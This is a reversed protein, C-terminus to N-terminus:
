FVHIKNRPVLILDDDLTLLVMFSFFMSAASLFHWVDHKDYFDLLECPQNYSKSQAPTLAWSISKNFFFYLSAAWSACSLLIYFVPQPLIRESCCKKMVIYFATYLLLNAMFIYLLYTAFDRLHYLYGYIALGWNCLNGLILLVMRNPYIPRICYYPNAKMDHYINLLVRKFVGFDLRWRGMYYIQASLALCTLLHVGTFGIWFYLTGKLVGWMGVLIVCALVAFTVYANANIDPHRNQYIKIMCLMAIVYMFSTDFQFNSHNPCVHYCGSLIGEMILAAGMAYFLGYHQPIGCFKDIRKDSQCHMRDRRYTLIIFLLGLLVYGLNSFVHNFDSLAGLPHACLFNYYCLDQNGTQNLVLQYTIVLQIVPLSYFVAVTLLNWLYLLSKQRLIRSDKRALDSVYLDTKTRFIDKEVYADVLADIDTEDLSSDSNCHPITSATDSAPSLVPSLDDNIVSDGDFTEESLPQRRQRIFYIVSIAISFVYFLGFIALIVISAVIYKLYTISPTLSFTVNKTRNFEMPQYLGFCDEDDGKVVFVMYFGTPFDERTLTIGGRVNVTQWFGEFQVNQELDFVPCSNNQISVTMCIDDPSDVRFLVTDPVSPEFKFSFYEPEAPHVTISRREELSVSFNNKRFMQLHVKLNQSSRTSVSVLIVNPNEDVHKSMLYNNNGPCLTRSTRSYNFTGTKTDVLLPLQWSLVGKQQKVVILVPYSRNSDTCEVLIRAPDDSLKDDIYEFIYEVSSNVYFNYDKSLEATKVIASFEEGRITNVLTNTESIVYILTCLYLLRGELM